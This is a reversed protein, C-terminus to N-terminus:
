DQLVKLLVRQYMVLETARFIIKSQLSHQSEINSVQLTLIQVNSLGLLYNESIGGIKNHDLYLERLFNM